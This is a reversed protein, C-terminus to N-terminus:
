PRRPRPVRFARPTAFLPFPGAEVGGSPTVEVVANRRRTVAKCLRSPLRSLAVQQVHPTGDGGTWVVYRPAWAERGKGPPVLFAYGNDQVGTKVATGDASTLFVSGVGDPVIGSVSVLDRKPGACPAVAPAALGRILRKHVGGGGAPADGEAVVVLGEQPKGDYPIPAYAPFPAPGFPVPTAPRVDVPFPVPTAIRLVGRAPRRRAAARRRVAGRPRVARPVTPTCIMRAIGLLPTVDAVPV